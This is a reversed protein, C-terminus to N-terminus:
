ASRRARGLSAHLVSSAEELSSGVFPRNQREECDQSFVGLSLRSLLFQGFSWDGLHSDANIHGAEGADAFQSGWIRALTRARDLTMYPDNTSAVLISPFPLLKRPVPAFGHLRKDIATEDVEPPAVLLAGVIKENWGECALEAWWAVAHCGLSHAALLVPGDVAAIARDLRNVWSNRHPRTWSGLDVRRCEPLQAEWLTQWHRPGSNMLGPVTLITPSRTIESQNM